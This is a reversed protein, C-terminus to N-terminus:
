IFSGLITENYINCVLIYSSYRACKLETINRNRASSEICDTPYVSLELPHSQQALRLALSVEPLVGTDESSRCFEVYARPHSVCTYLWM